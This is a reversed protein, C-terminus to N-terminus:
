CEWSIIQIYSPAYFARGNEWKSKLLTDCASFDQKGSLKTGGWTGLPPLEPQLNAIFSIVLLSVTVSLEKKEREFAKGEKGSMLTDSLTKVVDLLQSLHAPGVAM